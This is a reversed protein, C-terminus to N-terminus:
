CRRGSPARPSYTAARGQSDAKRHKQDDCGHDEPRSVFCPQVASRGIQIFASGAFGTRNENKWPLELTEDFEWEIPGSSSSTAIM